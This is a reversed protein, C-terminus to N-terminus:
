HVVDIDEKHGASHLLHRVVTIFPRRPPMFSFQSDVALCFASSRHSNGFSYQGSKLSQKLLM